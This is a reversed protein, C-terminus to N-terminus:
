KLDGSHRLRMAQLAEHFSVITQEIEERTTEFSLSFRIAGEGNKLGADTLCAPSENRSAHCASGASAIVGRMELAHLMVESPVAPVAVVVMADGRHQPSGLPRADGNDCVGHLLRLSLERMRAVGDDRLKSTMFAAEGFGVIGPLNFTGPRTGGQQDGGRIMPRLSVSPRILLAGVGQPGHIKHSSISIMDVDSSYNLRSLQAMAQVADVHVKLRNNRGKVAAAIENVKQVTGMENALGTFTVLGTANDVAEAMREPAVVGSNGANVIVCTGGSAAIHACAEETAAHEVSTTIVTNRPGRPVTGFIALNDSETGGSTFIVKWQGSGVLNLIRETATEVQRAAALGRRHRSSANGFGDDMARAVAARVEPYPRTTAANDLYIELTKEVSTLADSQVV